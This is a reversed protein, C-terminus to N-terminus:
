VDRSGCSWLLTACTEKARRMEHESDRLGIMEELNGCKHVVM